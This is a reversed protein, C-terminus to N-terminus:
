KLLLSVCRTCKMDCHARTRWVELMNRQSILPTCTRINRLLGSCELSPPVAHDKMKAM